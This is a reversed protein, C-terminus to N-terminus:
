GAGSSVYEARGLMDMYFAMIFGRGLMHKLVVYGHRDSMDFSEGVYQV